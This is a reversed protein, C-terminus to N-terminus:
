ARVLFGGFGKFLGLFTAAHSKGDDVVHIDEIKRVLDRSLDQPVFLTGKDDIVVGFVAAKGQATEEAPMYREQTKEARFLIEVRKVGAPLAKRLADGRKDLDTLRDDALIGKGLFSSRGDPLVWLYADLAIGVTAGKKVSVVSGTRMPDMCFWGKPELLPANTMIYP